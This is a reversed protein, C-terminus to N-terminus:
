SEIRTDMTLAPQPEKLWLRLVPGTRGIRLAMGDHEVWAVSVEQDGRFTCNTGISEVKWRQFSYTLKLHYRSVTSSSLVVDNSTSRGVEIIPQEAFTWEQIPEGTQPQHLSVKLWCPQIMSPTKESSSNDSGTPLTFHFTAGEDPRSDVRIGGGHREVICKCIALGIGTGEYAEKLHLRQFVDFIRDTHESAIGIGNDSISIHCFEDLPLADISIRPTAESRYKLSNTLLNKLLQQLQAEDGQVIPLNSQVVIEAKTKEIQAHLDCLVQHLVQDLSLPKVKLSAREIRSYELLDNILQTMRTAGDAMYDIYKNAREDLKGGYRRVLLDAYNRIKRLPERLDHSTIYAFHELAKNSQRLKRNTEALTTTREQVRRELDFNIQKLQANKFALKASAHRLELQTVVQRALAELSQTQAQSLTRPKHDIVCLTGVPHGNPSILPVGAYFRIGNDCTVLPNNAFREDELADNVVMTTSRLIAHSCFSVDRGTECLDFGVKSKFWQRNVDVLSILAIPADCISSALATIDDYGQESPTDLVDYQRLAELRAAEQPHAKAQM